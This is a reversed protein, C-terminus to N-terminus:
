KAFCVILRASNSETSLTAVALNRPCSYSETKSDREVVHEEEHGALFVVFTDLGQESQEGVLM